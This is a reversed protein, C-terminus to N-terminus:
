TKYSRYQRKYINISIKKLVDTKKCSWDFIKDIKKLSKKM